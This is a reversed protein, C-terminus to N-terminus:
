ISARPQLLPASLSLAQKPASSHECYPAWRTEKATSKRMYQKPRMDGYSPMWYSPVKHGFWFLGTTENLWKRKCESAGKSMMGRVKCGHLYHSVIFFSRFPYTVPGFPYGVLLTESTQNYSFENWAVMDSGAVIELGAWKGALPGETYRSWHEDLRQAVWSLAAGFAARTGGVIGCNVIGPFRRARKDSLLLGHHFHRSTSNLMWTRRASKHMWGISGHTDSGILLKRAPLAHCAPLNFVHVDTSDMAFACDWSLSELLKRYAIWRYADSPISRPPVSHYTVNLRQYVPADDTPHDTVVHVSVGPLCLSPNKHMMKDIMVHFLANLKKAADKKQSKKTAGLKYFNGSKHSDGSGRVLFATLVVTKKLPMPAPAAMARAIQVAEETVAYPFGRAPAPGSLYDAIKRYVDLPPPRRPATPQSM